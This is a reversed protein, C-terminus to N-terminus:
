LRYMEYKWTSRKERWSTMETHDQRDQGLTGSKDWRDHSNPGASSKSVGLWARVLLLRDTPRDPEGAVSSFFHPWPRSHDRARSCAHRIFSGGDGRGGGGGDRGGGDDEGLNFNVDHITALRMEEARRLEGGGRGGFFRNTVSTVNRPWAQYGSWLNWQCSQLEQANERGNTAIENSRTLARM